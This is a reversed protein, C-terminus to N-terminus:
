LSIYRALSILQIYIYNRPSIQLGFFYLHTPESVLVDSWCFQRDTCKKLLEFSLVFTFFEHLNVVVPPYQKTRVAHTEELWRRWRTRPTTCWPFFLGASEPVVKFYGTVTSVCEASCWLPLEVPTIRKLRQMSAIWWWVWNVTAAETPYKKIEQYILTNTLRHHLAVSHRLWGASAAAQSSISDAEHEFTKMSLLSHKEAHIM